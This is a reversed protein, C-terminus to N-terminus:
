NFHLYVGELVDYLVSLAMVEDSGQVMGDLIQNLLAINELNNNQYTLNQSQYFHLTHLLYKLAENCKELRLNGKEDYEYISVLTDIGKASNRSEYQKILRGKRDFHYARYLETERLADGLKYHSFNGYISKIENKEVLDQNFFPRDTFAEGLQNNLLQANLMSSAFLVFAFISFRHINKKIM